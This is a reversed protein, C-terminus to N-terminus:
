RPHHEVIRIYRVYFDMEENILHQRGSKLIDNVLPGDLGVLGTIDPVCSREIELVMTGHQRMLLFDPAEGDTIQRSIEETGVLDQVHEFRIKKILPHM